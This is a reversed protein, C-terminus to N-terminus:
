GVVYTHMHLFCLPGPQEFGWNFSWEWPLACSRPQSVGNKNVLLFRLVILLAVFEGQLKLRREFINIRWCELKQKCLINIMNINHSPRTRKVEELSSGCRCSYLTESRRGGRKEELYSQFGVLSRFGVKSSMTNRSPKWHLVYFIGNLDIM